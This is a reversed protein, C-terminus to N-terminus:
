SIKLKKNEWRCTLLQAIKERFTGTNHFNNISRVYTTLPNRQETSRPNKKM